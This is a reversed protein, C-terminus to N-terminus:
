PTRCAMLLSACHTDVRSAKLKSARSRYWPWGPIRSLMRACVVCAVSRSDPGPSAVWAPAPCCTADSGLRLPVKKGNSTASSCRYMALLCAHSSKSAFRRLRSWNESCDVVDEEDDRCSSSPSWERRPEEWERTSFGKMFATDRVVKAVMAAKAGASANDTRGAVEAPCHRSEASSKTQRCARVSSPKVCRCSTLRILRVPEGTEHRSVNWSSREWRSKVHPM